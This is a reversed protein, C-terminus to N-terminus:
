KVRFPHPRTHTGYVVHSGTLKYHLTDDHLGKGNYCIDRGVSTDFLFFNPELCIHQILVLLTGFAVSQEIGLQM